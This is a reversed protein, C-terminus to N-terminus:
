FAHNVGVAYTNISTSTGPAVVPAGKKKSVDAYVYTRKSLSYEYGLSYQRVKELGDTHKSGIGALIKGAGITHNAGVVWAKTNQNAIRTHEQDQRTMSFMLKTAPSVMVYGAFSSVTSEVANRENALMLAGPGNKYTVSISYPNALAAANAGYQPRLATGRGIVPVSGNAERSGITTNLQFGMYEPSNYFVANSFRNASNGAPGLPDSNYGAVMIDAQFGQPTPIGHFPEFAISSEQYATLGRGIRFTGFGGTLGVRSQGQFLPRSGSELTGTDPEYRMELQFIAKLGSGLEETGKFGLTNNARKGIGTAVDTRKVVGLDLNGYIQVSSQAQASGAFAGLLALALLSKKM